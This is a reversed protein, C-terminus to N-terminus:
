ISHLVKESGMCRTCVYGKTLKGGVLLRKRQLNLNWRRKTRRHSHSLQYGMRPKRKCILCEKSM